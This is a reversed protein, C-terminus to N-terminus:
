VKESLVSEWSKEVRLARTAGKCIRYVVTRFDTVVRSPSMHWASALQHMDNWKGRYPALKLYWWIYTQAIASRDRERGTESLALDDEDLVASIGMRQLQRGVERLISNSFRPQVHVPLASRHKQVVREFARWRLLLAEASAKIQQRAQRGRRYRRKAEADDHYGTELGHIEGALELKARRRHDKPMIREATAYLFAFKLVRNPHIHQPPAERVLFCIRSALDPHLKAYLDALKSDLQSLFEAPLKCKLRPDDAQVMTVDSDVM